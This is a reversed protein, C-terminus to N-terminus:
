SHLVEGFTAGTESIATRAAASAAGMDFFGQIMGDYRRSEVRVGAAALSAAYAEGEDRLPDFEGTFVVAAPVGTLDDALLPSLRPGIETVHGAYNTFFWEMTPTELFYGTGNETRSAHGGAVDTSPYILLQAALTDRLEQAVVAALNGGASDGAVALVSNGGLDDLHESAWRTASLADEVAAPFPAEPALRYGVSVVVARSDRAIARAMNDHTEIEGIVWGGGHFLVVTPLAGTEDPRYVRAPLDGDGGPVTIDEASRVPVVHQPQRGGVVLGAFSDRAQQPTTEHMPTEATALPALVGAIEPDVPM